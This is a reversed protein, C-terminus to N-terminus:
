PNPSFSSRGPALGADLPAWRELSAFLGLDLVSYAPNEGDLVVGQADVFNFPSPVADVWRWAAAVTLGQVPTGEATFGFQWAPRQPLPAGTDLNTAILHAASAGLTLRPHPTYRASYEEGEIRAEGINEAQFFSNAQILDIFDATHWTVHASLRGALWQGDAGAEWTTSREPRLAPNGYFPFYLDGLSPAMFARGYGARLKLGAERWDFGAALRPLGYAGYSSQDDLRFGADLLFRGKGEWHAQGYLAREHISQDVTSSSAFGGFSSADEYDVSEGIYEAGFVARTSTWPSVRARVAAAGRSNDMTSELYDTGGGGNPQNSNEIRGKLGSIEGEVTTVSGLPSSWVARGAFLRDKEQNNPDEIEHWSGSSSITTDAYDFVFDYPLGKKSQTGLASIALRSKGIPAQISFNENLGEYESNPADNDSRLTTVSAGAPVGGLAGSWQANFRSTADGGYEGFLRLSGRAPVPGASAAAGTPSLIQIVGGMAGSGYLASAPGGLVEVRRFGPNMLDAFDYSGVWPGDLPIGDFLVLSHRTDAGRVRIATLTGIGGSRQVGLAPTERLADSVFYAHDTALRSQGVVALDVPARDVHLPSPEATVVIPDVKYLPADAAAAAASDPSEGSAARAVGPLFPSAVLLPFVLFLSVLLPRPIPGM